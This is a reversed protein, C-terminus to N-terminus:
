HLFSNIPNNFRFAGAGFVGLLDFLFDRDHIAKPQMRPGGGHKDADGAPISAFDPHLLFAFFHVAFADHAQHHQGRALARFQM